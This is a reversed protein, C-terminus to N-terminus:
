LSPKLLLSVFLKWFVFIKQISFKRANHCLFCSFDRFHTKRFSSQDHSQASSILAVLQTVQLRVPFDATEGFIRWTTMMWIIGPPLVNHYMPCVTTLSTRECILKSNYAFDLELANEVM